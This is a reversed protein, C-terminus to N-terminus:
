NGHAVDWVCANHSPSSYRNNITECTDGAPCAAAIGGIACGNEITMCMNTYGSEYVKIASEYQENTWSCSTPVPASLKIGFCTAPLGGGGDASDHLNYAAAYITDLLNCQSFTKRSPDIKQLDAKIKPVTREFVTGNFGMFHDDGTENCGPIRQCTAWNKVNQDTWEYRGPNFLGEGFMQALILNPPVKYTQAAASIIDKLSQPIDGVRSSIGGLNCSGQAKPLDPLEGCIINTCEQSSTPQEYGYGQPRLATQIGKIFYELVGGYHPFFLKAELSDVGNWDSVRSDDPLIVGVLKLGTSSKDDLTYLAKSEAPMDAICSVPSNVGTKPYIRRFISDAGATTNSWIEDAYPFKGVTPITVYVESECTAEWSCTEIGTVRDEHCVYKPESCEIEGIDYQVDVEMESDPNKFTVDDGPNSRSNIIKCLGKEDRGSEVDNPIPAKEYEPIVNNQNGTTSAAGAEKEPGPKYTAKLLSSLEFNEQTHAQWLAYNHIIQYDSELIEAKAASVHAFLVMHAGRKDGNNSLPVYPYLDAYKNPVLFNEFCALRNIVPIIMCTQGRWEFYAKQYEISRVFPKGTGDDWPLPPTKLNWHDGISEEIASTSAFPYLLKFANVTASVAANSLANFVSLNGEWTRLRYVDGNASGGSEGYCPIPNTKGIGFLDIVWGLLGGGGEKACVVIQDHNEAKESVEGTDDDTTSGDKTPTKIVEKRVADQIVGPLLKKVPGSSNVIQSNNSKEYEARDITGNLYWSVYNNIMTGETMSGVGDKGNNTLETNGLIPLEVETLDVVVKKEYHTITPTCTPNGKYPCSVKGLSVVVANGCWYTVPKPGCDTAQYPRLSSFEPNETENCDAGGPFASEQASVTKPALYITAASLTLFVAFVFFSVINQSKTFKKIKQM